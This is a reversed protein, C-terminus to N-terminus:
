GAIRAQGWRSKKRERLGVEIVMCVFALALTWQYRDHPVRKTGAEFERGELRSLRSTYIDELPTPSNEVSLYDGGTVEAIRRLSADNLRTIVEEGDPGRLFTERGNEGVISIKGGVRTGIGVVYIRIGRDAAEKAMTAAEGELDEGDTLLVIAEHAGTRGDFLELGREIAAALNTGGLRNDAPRAHELLASLTTRDHTLPAIERADGSFAILAVRDGGMRDLLGRVERRARELRSPRLDRALMSNSTDLCVVLDIGKHAVERFTYGRVPGTVSIALLVLATSALGLRALSRTRSYNPLFRLLRRKSVLRALERGRQAFGIMGVVFVIVAIGALGALEPRLFDFGIM